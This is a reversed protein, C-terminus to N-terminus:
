ERLVEEKDIISNRPISGIRVAAPDGVQVAPDSASHFTVDRNVWVM